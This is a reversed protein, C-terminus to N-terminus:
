SSLYENIKVEILEIAKNLALGDKKIIIDAYKTYLHHRELFLIDLSDINTLLPRDKPNREKLIDLSVDLFIMIGNQKLYSINNEDLIAGGGTSIAQSHEKSIEFIVEKELKRFESQGNKAFIEAIEMGAKEAIETDIDVYIKNLKEALLKSFLTKGCMPMGILVLNVNKSLINHYIKETIAPEFVQNHFLECSKVAQHSLMMLGNVAILQLNKAEKLLKTELPNYILDVVYHLNPFLKLDVLLNDSNNPYMGLPTTNFVINIEKDVIVDNFDIENEKPNRALVVIKKAKLSECLFKTTRMSAGNGLILVGKDKISIEYFNLLFELGDYDTNYGYLYGNKNIITNVSNTAKVTDSVFDLYPIVAEKYPITVNVGKFKKKSFFSDLQPLEILDYPESHLQEHIEKSFSHSLHKGILGYMYVSSEKSTRVKKLLQKIYQM